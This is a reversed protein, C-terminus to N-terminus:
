RRKLWKKIELHTQKTIRAAIGAVVNKPPPPKPNLSDLPVIKGNELEVIEISEGTKPDPGWGRLLGITIQKFGSVTGFVLPKPSGAVWIPGGSAGPGLPADDLAFHQPFNKISHTRAYMLRGKREFTYGHAFFPRKRRTDLFSDKAWRVLARPITAPLDKDLFYMAVDNSNFDQSVTKQVQKGYDKLNKYMVKAFLSHKSVVFRDAGIPILQTTKGFTGHFAPICVLRAQKRGILDIQQRRQLDLMKCVHAATLIHRNGVVAGSSWTVFDAITKPQAVKSLGIFVIWPRAGPTEEQIPM